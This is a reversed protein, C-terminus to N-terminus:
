YTLIYTVLPHYIGQSRVHVHVHVHRLLTRLAIHGPDDRTVQARLGGERRGPGSHVQEHLPEAVRLLALPLARDIHKEHAVLHCACAMRVGRVRPACHVTCACVVCAKRTPGAPPRPRSAAPRASPSRRAARASRAARCAVAASGCASVRAPAAARPRARPATCASRARPASPYTM